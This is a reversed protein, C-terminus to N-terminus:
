TDHIYGYEIYIGMRADNQRAIKHAIKGDCQRQIEAVLRDDHVFQDAEGRLVSLNLFPEQPLHVQGIRQQVVAAFHYPRIRGKLGHGVLGLSVLLGDGGQEGGDGPVAQRIGVPHVFGLIVQFVLPVLIHGLELLNGQLVHRLVAVHYFGLPIVPEQYRHVEVILRGEM